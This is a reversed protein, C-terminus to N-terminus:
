LVSMDSIVPLPVTICFPLVSNDLFKVMNYMESFHFYFLCFPLVSNDLFKVMNYMESFHFYFLFKM